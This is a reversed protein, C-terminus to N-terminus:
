WRNRRHKRLINACQIYMHDDINRLEHLDRHLQSKSVGLERAVKRISDSPHDILWEAERKCREEIEVRRFEAEDMFRALDEGSFYKSIQSSM